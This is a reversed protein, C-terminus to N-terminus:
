NLLSSINFNFDKIFERPSNVFLPGVFFFLFLIFKSLSTCINLHFFALHATILSM